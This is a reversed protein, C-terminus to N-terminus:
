YIKTAHDLLFKGSNLELQRISASLALSFLSSFVTKHDLELVISNSACRFSFTLRCCCCKGFVAETGSKLVANKSFNSALVRDRTATKCKFEQM